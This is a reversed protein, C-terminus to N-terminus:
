IKTKILNNWKEYITTKRKKNFEKMKASIEQTDITNVLSNLEEFSDFYTIYPMWEQVYFDAFQIWHKFSEINKYDNPDYQKKYNIFSKSDQELLGNWSVENLVTFGKEYLEILFRQTPFILPINSSYQEFISMYSIQYPFHIIGKFKLLDAHTHSSFLENKWKIKTNTLESIKNRSYYIFDNENNEYELGYYDCISPILEVDREIFDEMYLKDHMNNAVLIVYGDDVGERLFNNFKEWDDKRFSFPWEYRIPNNIIIPKKFHKYLLAFPPPYTVIFGDFDKLQEKYQNYFEDSYQEPTIKMWRENDLMPVSDKKRNFVWTHNSLSLDTVDHGLDNFIKRMDAIISIHLDINFFNMTKKNKKDLLTFIM